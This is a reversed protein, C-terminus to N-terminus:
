SAAGNVAITIVTHVASTATGSVIGTSGATAQLGLIVHVGGGNGLNKIGGGVSGVASATGEFPDATSGTTTISSVWAGSNADRDTSFVTVVMSTNNVTTVAVSAPATTTGLATANCATELPTSANFSGVKFGFIFGTLHDGTNIAITRTPTTSALIQYFVNLETGTDQIGSCSVATWGAMTPVNPGDSEVVAIALDGIAAGTYMAPTLDGAAGSVTGSDVFIPTYITPTAPTGPTDTFTAGFRDFMGLKASDVDRTEATAWGAVLLAALVPAFYRKITNRYLM